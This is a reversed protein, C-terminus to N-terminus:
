YRYAFHLLHYNLGPNPDEIGANSLHMLRYGLEYRAGEGFRVGFGGTPAFQLHTSVDVGDLRTDSLYHPGVGLELYPGGRNERYSALRVVASIGAEVVETIEASGSDDEALTGINLEWQGTLQWDGDRSWRWPWDWLWGIRTATGENGPKINKAGVGGNLLIGDVAWVPAAASATLVTLLLRKVGDM